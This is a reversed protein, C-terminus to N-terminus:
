KKEKQWTRVKCTVVAADRICLRGEGVVIEQKVETGKIVDFGSLDASVDPNPTICKPYIPILM